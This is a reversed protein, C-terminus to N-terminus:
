IAWFVPIRHRHHLLDHCLHSLISDYRPRSGLFCANPCSISQIILSQYSRRGDRQNGIVHKITVKYNGYSYVFVSTQVSLVGFSPQFAIFFFIKMM